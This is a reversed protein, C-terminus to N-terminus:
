ENSEAKRLLEELEAIRESRKALQERLIEETTPGPDKDIMYGFGEGKDLKRFKPGTM